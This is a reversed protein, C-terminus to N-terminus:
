QAAHRHRRAFHSGARGTRGRRRGRRPATFGGRATRRTHRGRGRRGARCALSGNRRRHDPDHHRCQRAPPVFVISVTVRTDQGVRLVLSLTDTRLGIRRVVVRQPGAPMTLVLRGGDDVVGGVLPVADLVVALAGAAHRGDHHALLHLRASPLVAPSQQAVLSTSGALGLALVMVTVRASVKPVALRQAAYISSHGSFLYALFCATALYVGIQAGFLEVGMVTCALPTNTAGAFVAVFGIAAFLAIPADLLVGMTHGLTAGIFFLPTV